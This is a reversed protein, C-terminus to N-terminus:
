ERAVVWGSPNAGDESQSVWDDQTRMRAEVSVTMTGRENTLGLLSMGADMLPLPRVETSIRVAVEPSAENGEFDIVWSCAGDHVHFVDVQPVASLRRRIFDEELSSPSSSTALLRCAQAAAGQMVIRDYLVIGPQVLLLVLLLLIPLSFAAEVTAQGASDHKFVSCM